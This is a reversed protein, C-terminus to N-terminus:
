GNGEESYICHEYLYKHEDPLTDFITNALERIEWLAAKNTRLALFNQLSRANISWVLSTKYADPLCFKAKDNPLGSAIAQRLGELSQIIKDDVFTEGTFIVYKNARERTKELFVGLSAGITENFPEEDRLEKLTYRTSKVSFSSIRHRALEQLLARSVGDIDFNYSLHELTSSHKNKNGIRHILEKDKTGAEPVSNFIVEAGSHDTSCEELYYDLGSMMEESTDSKGESAWCKRIATSAVWLPTHHLLKVEM